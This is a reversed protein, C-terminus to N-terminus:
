FSRSTTQVQSDEAKDIDPLLWQFLTSLKDMLLGDLTRSHLGGHPCGLQKLWETFDRQGEMNSLSGM